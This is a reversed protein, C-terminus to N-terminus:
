LKVLQHAFYPKGFSKGTDASKVFIPGGPMVSTVIGTKGKNKGWLIEVRDLPVCKIYPSEPSFKLDHFKLSYIGKKGVITCGCEQDDDYITHVVVKAKLSYSYYVDKPLFVPIKDTQVPKMDRIAEQERQSLFAWVQKKFKATWDETLEKIMEWSQDHLAERLLEANAAPDYTLDPATETPECEQKIEGQFILAPDAPDAPDFHSFTNSDAQSVPIEINEELPDTKLLTDHRVQDVVKNEVPMAEILQGMYTEPQSIEDSGASGAFNENKLSSTKERWIRVWKGNVKIREAECNLQKLITTIQRMNGTNQHVPDIGLERYCEEVTVYDRNTIFRGLIDTWPHTVEYEKNQVERSIEENDNLRYDYGTKYLANAAAWIRDRLKQVEEVPINNVLCLIIWFRRNGSPDNLIEMENTTGAFVCGRKYDKPLRDYPTRFTEHRRALFSKLQAVDKRKYVTEFESWELCWFRHMKMREDKDSGDGLDDSFFDDGYLTRWFTSKRIGQKGVLLLACDMWCGPNRARAVSAVLFNKFYKAHLPDDTGFFQKALGDLFETEVGPFKAEVEDLYEVVPSYTNKRAIYEVITFADDKSIDIPFQMGIMLKLYEANLPMGNFEIDKKLSNYRLSEGWADNIIEFQKAIKSKPKEEELQFDDIEEKWESFTLSKDKLEQFADAGHLSIYDDMGKADGEPLKIVMVVSGNRALQAALGILGNQVPKKYLIDNDFCFYFTRGLVAFIELLQHLRGNKRCTSVGPISITAHGASLGAGAKKAGETIIISQLVDDIISKWYGEIGTRLFLPASEMGSAGLYKQPKGDKSVPTNDPKAQVGQLTPEDTLPDVGSAYWCPTLEGSHKWRRTTNRGLIKDVERPDHLSRVNLVIIEKSVASERWEEYHHPAIIESLSKQDLTAVTM